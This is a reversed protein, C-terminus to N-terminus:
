NGTEARIAEAIRASAQRAKRGLDTDSELRVVENMNVLAEDLWGNRALTAGLNYRARVSKPDAAIAQRLRHIARDDDGTRMRAMGLYLYGNAYDPGM